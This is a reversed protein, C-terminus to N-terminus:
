CARGRTSGAKPHNFVIAQSRLILSRPSVFTSHNTTKALAANLRRRSVVNIAAGAHCKRWARGDARGRVSRSVLMSESAAGIAISDAGNM